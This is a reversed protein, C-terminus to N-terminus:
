LNSYMFAFINTAWHFLGVLLVSKKQPKWQSVIITAETIISCLINCIRYWWWKPNIKLKNQLCLISKIKRHIMTTEICLIVVRKMILIFRQATILNHDWLDKCVYVVYMECTNATLPQCLANYVFFSSFPHEKYEFPNMTLFKIEDLSCWKNSNKWHLFFLYMLKMTWSVKGGDLQDSIVNSHM